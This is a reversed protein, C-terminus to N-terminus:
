FEHTGETQASDALSPAFRTCSFPFAVLTETAKKLKVAKNEIPASSLVQVKVSNGGSSGSDLADALEAVDACPRSDENKWVALASDVESARSPTHCLLPAGHSEGLFAFFRPTSAVEAWDAAIVM